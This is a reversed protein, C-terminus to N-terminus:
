VRFFCLAECVELLILKHLWIGSRYNCFVILILIVLSGVNNGEGWAELIAGELTLSARTPASSNASSRTSLQLASQPLSRKDLALMDLGELPGSAMMLRGVAPM